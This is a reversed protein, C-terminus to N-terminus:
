IKSKLNGRGIIVGNVTLDQFNIFIKGVLMQLVQLICIKLSM